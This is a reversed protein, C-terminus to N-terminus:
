ARLVRSSTHRGAVAVVARSHPGALNPAAVAAAAAETTAGAAAEAM